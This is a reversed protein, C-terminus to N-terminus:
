EFLITKSLFDISKLRLEALHSKVGRHGRPSRSLLQDRFLLDEVNGVSCVTSEMGLNATMGASIPNGQWDVWRVSRQPLTQM